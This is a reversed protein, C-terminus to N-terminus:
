QPNLQPQHYDVHRTLWLLAEDRSFFIHLATSRWLQSLSGIFLKLVHGLPSPPLVIAVFSVQVPKLAALERAKERVYPSIDHVHESLHLLLFCPEGTELSRQVVGCHYGTWHDITAPNLDHFTVARITHNYLLEEAYGLPVQTAAKTVDRTIVTGVPTPKSADAFSTSESMWFMVYWLYIVYVNFDDYLM